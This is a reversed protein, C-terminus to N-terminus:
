LRQQLQGGKWFDLSETRLFREAFGHGRGGSTAGAGGRDRGGELGGQHIKARIVGAQLRESILRLFRKRYQM